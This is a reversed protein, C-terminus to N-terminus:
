QPQHREPQDPPVEPAMSEAGALKLPDLLIGQRVVFGRPTSQGLLKVARGETPMGPEGQRSEEVWQTADDGLVPTGDDLTFKNYRDLRLTGTLFVLQRSSPATRARKSVDLSKLNGAVGPAAIAVGIVVLALGLGRRVLQRLRTRM